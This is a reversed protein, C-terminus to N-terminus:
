QNIKALFTVSAFTIMDSLYRFKDAPLVSKLICLRSIRVAELHGM